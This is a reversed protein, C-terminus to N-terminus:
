VEEQELPKSARTYVTLLDGKGCVVTLARWDEIFHDATDKGLLRVLDARVNEPKRDLRFLAPQDKDVPLSHTNDSLRYPSYYYVRHARKEDVDWYERASVSVVLAAGRRGTVSFRGQKDTSVGRVHTWGFYPSHFPELVRDFVLIKVPMEPVPQGNEDHVLGHFEIPTEIEMRVRNELDDGGLPGLDPAWGGRQLIAVERQNETDEPVVICGSLILPLLAVRSYNCAARIM